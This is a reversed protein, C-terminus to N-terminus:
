PFLAQLVLDFGPLLSLQKAESPLLWQHQQAEWDLTIADTTVTVLIPVVLWTKHYDPAEQVIVQGRQISGITEPALGLEERMEEYVKEEISQQDDLFGSIGNWYSPYLRMHPSRQVLLIKDGYQVVCNVVPCYRINTYDVQGDKPVFAPETSM